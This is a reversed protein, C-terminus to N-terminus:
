KIRYDVAKFEKTLFSTGYFNDAQIAYYLINGMYFGNWYSYGNASFEWVDGITNAQCNSM